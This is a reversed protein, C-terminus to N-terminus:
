SSGALSAPMTRCADGSVRIRADERGCVGSVTAPQQNMPHPNWWSHPVDSDGSMSDEAEYGPRIVQVALQQLQREFDRYSTGPGPGEVATEVGIEPEIRHNQPRSLVASDDVRNERQGGCDAGVAM